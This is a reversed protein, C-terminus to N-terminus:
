KIAGRWVRYIQASSMGTLKVVEDVPTGKLSIVKAYVEDNYKLRHRKKNVKDDTNDQNSGIFLHDPRVCKPNDCKHLVQINSPLKVDHWIQFFHRHCSVTMYRKRYTMHEFTHQHTGYGGRTHNINGSWEWCSDGIKIKSLFAETLPLVESTKYQQLEM